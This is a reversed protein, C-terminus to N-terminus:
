SGLFKQIRELLASFKFPKTVFENAGLRLARDRNGNDSMATMIIVPLAKQKQRLDLLVTWGDKLPLGVDLLLLDFPESALLSLVQEGDEAITPNFGNKRLGKEVFSALRTEDEAILIRYM